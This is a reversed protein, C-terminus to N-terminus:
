QCKGSVYIYSFTLVILKSSTKTIADCHTLKIIEDDAVKKNFHKIQGFVFVLFNIFYLLNCLATSNFLVSFLLNFTSNIM